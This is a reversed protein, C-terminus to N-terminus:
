RRKGGGGRGGPGGGRRKGVGGGRVASVASKGFARAGGKGFDKPAGKPARGKKSGFNSPSSSFSSREGYDGSGRGGSGGGRGGGRGGRGGGGGRKRELNASRRAAERERKKEERRRDARMQEVNKVEDRPGRGGLAGDGDGSSSAFKKRSTVSSAPNDWGRGGRKFRGALDSGALRSAEAGEAEGTAAVHLKTARSWRDYLSKGPAPKESDSKASFGFGDGRVRKGAKIAEDAQLAVYRKKRVDWHWRRGGGGSGAVGGAAVAAAGAGAGDDGALDLVAAGLASRTNGGGASASSGGGYSSSAGAAGRLSLGAELHRESQEGPLYFEPDRFRSSSPGASAFDAEAASAVGDGLRAASAAEKRAAELSASSSKGKSRRKGGGAGRDEEDDRELAGSKGAGAAAALEEAAAKRAALVTAGHRARLLSMADGRAATSKLVTSDVGSLPNSAALARHVARNALAAVASPAVDAELVTASPRWARLASAMRAAEAAESATARPQGGAGAPAPSPGSVVGGSISSRGNRETGGGGDGGGSVVRALAPHVPLVPPLKKARAASEAAAPPRTRLYLKSANDASRALQQLHPSAEICQRVREGEIDLADQPFAGLVTSGGVADDEADDADSDGGKGESPSFSLARLPRGLFLHLDLLYPAEDRAVLSHAWGERGARAVRGARHVFLKPSPPFDYNIVADLHPLDLGRAAVDTVVLVAARRARFRGVAITRAAQDMSGTIKRKKLKTFFFLWLPPSLCPPLLSARTLKKGRRRFFFTAGLFGFFFFFFLSFCFIEGHVAAVSVGDAELLASLLEVHHRTSAFVATPPVAFSPTPAPFSSSKSSSKIGRREREAAEQEAAALAAVSNSMAERLLWRLAAPKDNSRVSYFAMRLGPALRAEADLRVVEPDRLGAAAFEALASPMTASFLLAQRERPLAQLLQALQPAFGMEFLRDAEDFVVIKTAALSMGPVESLLHLLRGPTAVLVDPNAALEAFQHELADGGVLAAVRLDTYKALDRIAAHTQLALERAPSLVVARAGARPSHRRLAAVVPVAFAATKGSGTRAMAVVDHGALAPPLARRQIPTPLRYGKRKIARLIEPPLNMTEIQNEHKKTKPKIKNELTLESFRPSPGFPRLSPSFFFGKGFSGAKLKKKMEREKKARRGGPDAANKDDPGFDVVAAADGGSSSFKLIVGDLPKENEGGGNGGSASGNGDDAHSHKGGGKKKTKLSMGGGAEARKYPTSPRPAEHKSSSSSSPRKLKAAPADRNSPTKKSRGGGAVAATSKAM